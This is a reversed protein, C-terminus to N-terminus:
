NRTYMIDWFNRDDYTNWSNGDGYMCICFMLTRILTETNHAVVPQLCGGNPDRSLVIFSALFHGASRVTGEEPLKLAEVGTPTTFQSIGLVTYMAIHVYGVCHICKQEVSIIYMQTRSSKSISITNTCLCSAAGDYLEILYRKCCVPIHPFYQKHGIGM